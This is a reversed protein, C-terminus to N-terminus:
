SSDPTLGRRVLFNNPAFDDQFVGADHVQRSLAGFATVLAHRERPPSSEELWLRRLDLSM